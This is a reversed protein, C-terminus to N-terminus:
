KQFTMRRIEELTADAWFRLYSELPELVDSGTVEGEAEPREDEQSQWLTIGFFTVLQENGDTRFEFPRMGTDESSAEDNLKDVIKSIHESDETM